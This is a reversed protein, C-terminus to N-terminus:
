FGGEFGGLRNLARVVDFHRRGEKRVRKKRRDCIEGLALNREEEKSIRLSRKSEVAEKLKKSLKEGKLTKCILEIAKKKKRISKGRLSPEFKKSEVESEVLNRVGKLFYTLAELSKELNKKKPKKQKSKSKKPIKAKKRTKSIKKLNQVNKLNKNLNKSKRRGTRSKSYNGSRKSLQSTNLRESRLVLKEVPNAYYEQSPGLNGWIDSQCGAFGGSEKMKSWELKKKYLNEFLPNSSINRMRGFHYSKQHNHLPKDDLFNIKTQNRSFSMISSKPRKEFNQVEADGNISRKSSISRLNVFDNKLDSNGFIPNNQHNSRSFPETNDYHDNFLNNNGNNFIDFNQGFPKGIPTIPTSRAGMKSEMDSIIKKQTKILNIMKEKEKEYNYSLEALNSAELQEIIKTANIEEKLSKKSIKSSTSSNEEEIEENEQKYKNIKEELTEIKKKFFNESKKLNKPNEHKKGFESKEFFISNEENKNKNKRNYEEEFNNVEENKFTLEQALDFRM